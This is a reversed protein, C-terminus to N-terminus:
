PFNWPEDTEMQKSDSGVSYSKGVRCEVVLQQFCGLIRMSEQYFFLTKGRISGLIFVFM